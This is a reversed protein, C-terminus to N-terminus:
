LSANLWAAFADQTFNRGLFDRVMVAADRAGGPSLVQARYAGAVEPNLMGEAAFRSLLDFAIVQSWLYTYYLASYGELHGFSAQFATGEVFAFPSYRAQLARVRAGTDVDKAAERHLGLSLAAYFVQTQVMVGAGMSRARQMKAVLAAPIPTGDARHAFRQLTELDYTWEEFLQSPAEVFDWECAIGGLAAWRQRGALLHHLLHGFEHFFTRVDNHELWAEEGSPFNCVLASEPLQVGAVGVRLPFAAAHSFKDARPHLDLYFRGIPGQADHVDYASVDAHWTPVSAQRYSLGFMQATLDFLGQRVRGLRFYPRASQADLQAASRRVREQAYARQWEAVEQGSDGEGHLAADGLSARLQAMDRAAAPAALRWLDDLFTQASAASGVMKDGTAYDAWHAYGLLQALEQRLLLIDALVQLNDPTGRQRQAVYLRRRAEDDHAYTMFPVADPSATTIQFSGDAARSQMHRAIYDEPLGALGAPGAVSISRQDESINRDFAQGKAVLQQNIARVRARAAPALAVGAREAERRALAVWRRTAADAATLDLGGLAVFLPGSLRLETALQQLEQEAAAAAARAEPEPRVSRLLAAGGLAMDMLRLLADLAPLLAAPGPEGEALAELATLRQRAQAAQDALHAALPAAELTLFTATDCPSTWPSAAASM